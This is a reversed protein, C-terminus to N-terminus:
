RSLGRDPGARVRCARRGCGNGRRCVIGSGCGREGGRESGRGSRSAARGAGADPRQGASGLPGPLRQPPLFLAARRFVRAHLRRRRSGRAADGGGAHVIFHGLDNHNHAEHNHGGKASFALLGGPASRKAILWATSPFYWARDAAPVNMRAPDTWLLNRVQHPWRYCHDAHFSPVATMEPPSVGLRDCLRSILGANAIMSPECDSYNVCLSGSLSVAAPFEAIRRIKDSRLLDISGGTYERLMEAWYVFYGFGYNWYGAGESCCGDEGYGALFSEMASVIRHQMGALMERDDVLLLAAMGAAGGCVAAWNNTVAEWLFHTSREFLPRFVRREVEERIRLAVWPHLRDGVLYLTEALAHATEAAFLDVTQEPPVSGAFAAGTREPLHAPIAWTYEGCIEWISNELAQIYRGCGDGGDGVSGDKGDKRAKLDGREDRRGGTDDLLVALALALLRGRREFYPKEFEIRTGAADFRSFDGFSLPPVPERVARQAEERIERLLTALHPARKLAALREPTFAGGALTDPKPGASLLAERLERYM